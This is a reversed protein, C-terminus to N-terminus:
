SPPTSNKKLRPSKRLLASWGAQTIKCGKAHLTHLAKLSALTEIAADDVETGVIWLINLAPHNKLADLGQSTVACQSVDLERLPRIAGFSALSADTIQTSEVNLRKVAFGTALGQILRDDCDTHALDIADWEAHTALVETLEQPSFKCRPLILEKRNAFPQYTASDISPNQLFAVYARVFAEDTETREVPPESRHYLADLQEIVDQRNVEPSEFLYHAIGAAQSYRPALDRPDRFRVGDARSFEQWPFWMGEYLMRFRSAQLRPSDWGGVDMLRANGIENFALSEMYLAVGEALWFGQSRNPDFM